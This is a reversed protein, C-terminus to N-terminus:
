YVEMIILDIPTISFTKYQNLTNNINLKLTQQEFVLYIIKM